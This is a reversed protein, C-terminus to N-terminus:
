FDHVFHFFKMLTEKIVKFIVNGDYYSATTYPTSHLNAYPTHFNARPTHFHVRANHSHLWTNPYSTKRCEYVLRM